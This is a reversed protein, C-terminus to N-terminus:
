YFPRTLRFVIRRIIIGVILIILIYPLFSSLVETLFIATVALVENWNIILSVIGIGTIISLAVAFIGSPALNNM